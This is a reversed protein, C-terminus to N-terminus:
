LNHRLCQDGGLPPSAAFFNFQGERAERGASPAHPLLIAVERGGQEFRLSAEVEGEGITKVTLGTFNWHRNQKGGSAVDAGLLFFPHPHEIVRMNRVAAFIGGGVQLVTTGEVVGAYRHIAESGPVSFKGCGDDKRVHLRLADAMKTDIVTRHAGTDVICYVLCGNVGLHGVYQSKDWRLLHRMDALDAAWDPIGCIVKPAEEGKARTERLEGLLEFLKACKEEGLLNAVDHKVRKAGTDGPGSMRVDQDPNRVLAGADPNLGLEVLKSAVEGVNQETLGSLASKYDSYKSESVTQLRIGHPVVLAGGENFIQTVLEALLLTRLAADVKAARLASYSVRIRSLMTGTDVKKPPKPPAPPGEVVKGSAKVGGTQVGAEATPALLRALKALLEDQSTEGGRQM